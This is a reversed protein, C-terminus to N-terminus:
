HIGPAEIQGAFLGPSPIDGTLGGQPIEGFLGPNGIQGFLGGSGQDGPHLGPGSQDGTIGVTNIEEVMGPCGIYGFLAGTSIEGIGPSEIHGM